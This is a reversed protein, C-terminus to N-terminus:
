AHGLFSACPRGARGFAYMAFSTSKQGWRKVLLPM